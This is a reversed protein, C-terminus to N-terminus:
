CLLFIHTNKAPTIGRPAETRREVVLPWAFHAAPVVRIVALSRVLTHARLARLAAVDAVGVAVGLMPQNETILLHLTPSTFMVRPLM